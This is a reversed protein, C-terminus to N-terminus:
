PFFRTRSFQHPQFVCLIKKEIGYKERVAQITASIETPHHAYDDIVLTKGYYGKVQFRRGAGKYDLLSKGANSMDMNLSM